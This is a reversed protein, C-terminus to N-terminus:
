KVSTFKKNFISRLFWQMCRVDLDKGFRRYGNSINLDMSLYITLIGSFTIVTTDLYKNCVISQHDILCPYM